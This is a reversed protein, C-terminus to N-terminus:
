KSTKEIRKKCFFEGAKGTIKKYFIAIRTGLILIPLWIPMFEIILNNIVKEM